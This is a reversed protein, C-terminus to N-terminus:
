TLHAVFNADFADSILTLPKVFTKGFINPKKGGRSDRRESTERKAQTGREGRAERSHRTIAENNM